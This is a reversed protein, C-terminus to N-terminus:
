RRRVMGDPRTSRRRCDRAGISRGSPDSRDLPDERGDNPDYPYSPAHMFVGDMPGGPGEAAQPEEVM